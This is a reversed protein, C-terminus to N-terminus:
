PRLFMAGLDRKGRERPQPSLWPRTSEGVLRLVPLLTPWFTVATLLSTTEKPVVPPAKVLVLEVESYLWTCTYSHILSCSPFSLYPPLSPSLSLSLSLSPFSFVTIVYHMHCTVYDCAHIYMVVLYVRRQTVSRRIIYIFSSQKDYGNLEMGARFWLWAILMVCIQVATCHPQIVEQEHVMVFVVSLGVPRSERDRLVVLIKKVCVCSLFCLLCIEIM